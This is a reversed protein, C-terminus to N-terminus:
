AVGGRVNRRVTIVVNPVSKATASVSNTGSPVVATPRWDCVHARV